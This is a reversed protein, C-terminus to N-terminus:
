QGGQQAVQVVQPAAPMAPGVYPAIDRPYNFDTYIGQPMLPIRTGADFEGQKILATQFISGQGTSMQSCYGLIDASSAFISASKGPMDPGASLITGDKAAKMTALATCVVHADLQWLVDLLHKFFSDMYGWQGKMERAGSRTLEMEVFRAVHTLSEVVITDAWKRLRGAKHVALLEDLAANMEERSAVKIYPHGTGALAIEGNENRPFIFLPRPFTAAIRTKGSRTHGYLFVRLKPPVGLAQEFKM